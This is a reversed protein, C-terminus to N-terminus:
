KEWDTLLRALLRVGVGTAGKANYPRETELWSTGAIDLHAWPYEGVFKQLFKAAVITQAPRGGTNNADAVESKLAEAYDDWLPLEWVREWAVEAARKIKEILARDNGLLGTAHEGLAIICGGTLTAIDIVASPKYRGAYHLADALLLRGEADTSIIEV